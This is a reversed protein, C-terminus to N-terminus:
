YQPHLKSKWHGYGSHSNSSFLSYNHKRGERLAGLEQVLDHPLLVKLLQLLLVLIDSLLVVVGQLHSHITSVCACVLTCKISRPGIVWM